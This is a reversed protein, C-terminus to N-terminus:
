KCSNVWKSEVGLESYSTKESNKMSKRVELKALEALQEKTAPRGCSLCSYDDSSRVISGGCRKCRLIM